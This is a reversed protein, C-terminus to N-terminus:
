ELNKSEQVMHRLVHSAYRNFLERDQKVEDTLEFFLDKSQFNPKFFPEKLVSWQRIFTSSHKTYCTAAQAKKRRAADVYIAVDKHIATDEEPLYYYDSYNSYFYKLEGEFIPVRLSATEHEGSFYCHDVFSSIKKPLPNQLRLQIYLEKRKDNNYNTYSSAQVKEVHVSDNFLDTISLISLIGLMGKMDDANHLLLLELTHPDPSAVYDHYFTILEKGNYRDVRNVHLYDEITKLKCNPLKFFSKYPSIRRYIDLGNSSLAPIDIQLMRAKQRLYPIDFNNGNFHIFFSHNKVFDRFAELIKSEESYNEAFWQIIYWSGESYYAGGILYLSSGKATFGTTEIDLFFIQELPAFKDLPYPVSYHDLKVTVNKM